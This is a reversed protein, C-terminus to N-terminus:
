RIYRQGSRVAHGECASAGTAELARRDPPGTMPEVYGPCGLVTTQGNGWGGGGEHPALRVLPAPLARELGRQHDEVREVVRGRCDGEEM